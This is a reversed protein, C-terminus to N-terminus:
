EQPPERFLSSIRASYEDPNAQARGPEAHKVIYGTFYHMLDQAEDGVATAHSELAKWAEVSEDKPWGNQIFWRHVLLHRDEIYKELRSEVTPDINGRASLEKVINKLPNKYAGGAVYGGTKQFYGPQVNMKFFEYIPALSAEFVQCLWVARGVSAFAATM